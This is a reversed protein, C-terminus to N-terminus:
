TMMNLASGSNEWENRVRRILYCLKLGLINTMITPRGEEDSNDIINHIDPSYPLGQYEEENLYGKATGEEDDDIFSDYGDLSTGFDESGLSVELSGHYDRIREQVDPGRPKDSTIHQVTTHSLVRGKESLICYCIASIVRQSVGLQLGSMPNTDDSQNNWFWVLDYFEFEMWESIDITDDILRELSPREDKGANHSYIESEWVMGFDWVRMPINRQVIRRKSKGKIIKIVSKAKNKWPTQPKSTSVDM